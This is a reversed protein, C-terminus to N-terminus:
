TGAKIHYSVIWRQGFDIPTIKLFELPQLVDVKPINTLM